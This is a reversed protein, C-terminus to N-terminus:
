SLANNIKRLTEVPILMAVSDDLYSLKYRKEEEILEVLGIKVLNKFKTSVVQRTLGVQDALRSFVVDEKNVYRNTEGNITESYSMAQLFSYLLDNYKKDATYKEIKPVQRSDKEIKLAL